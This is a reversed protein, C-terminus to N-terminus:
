TRLADHFKAAATVGNKGSLMEFYQGISRRSIWPLKNVQQRALVGM